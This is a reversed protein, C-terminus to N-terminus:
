CYYVYYFKTAGKDEEILMSGDSIYPKHLLKETIKWDFEPQQLYCKRNEPSAFSIIVFLGKKKLVRYVESLYSAINAM